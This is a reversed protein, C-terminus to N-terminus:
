CRPAQGGDGSHLEIRIGKPVSRYAHARLLENPFELTGGMDRLVRRSVLESLGEMIGRLSLDAIAYLRVDNLRNGLVAAVSLVQRAPPSIEALIRDVLRAFPDNGGAPPVLRLDVTIARLALAACNPGNTGWDQALLELAMPFGRSASVLARRETRTPLQRSVDLLSELLEDSEDDPMVDLVLRDIRLQGGSESFREAPTGLIADLRATVVVLGRGKPLRRMVLHLVALSAEDANHIDDVVLLLPREEMVATLLDIVGEAFLLRASEGEGQKPPPLHPFHAKVGPVLRGVEALAEPSTAALGPRGLLGTVLGGIAAFPIRQEMQYCQVRSVSAGEMGAATVLRQALTTKGVGSDGAILLYRPEFQHVAEWTEYLVRYEARRGVFKRDRWQEAPVAPIPNPEKPEWGRKRLQSAMGEVLGSPEARLEGALQEKWEDFVRLASFRDGVLALAEMKARVGEEALHDLALLREARRMIEEHSGRRRGHDILTLLGAHIAPMRHSHEREKWLSWEPCDDLEFGRLFGDVDIVAEGDPGIIEGKALPDLDLALEAPHFRVQDRTATFATKGFIGRLFSLATACSHRGREPQVRGWFLDVLRSRSHGQRREVALYVLLALHKKVRIRVVKGEATRLEPHGLCTLVFRKAM